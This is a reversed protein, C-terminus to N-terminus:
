SRRMVYGDWWRDGRMADLDRWQEVIAMGAGTMAATMQASRHDRFLEESEGDVPARVTTMVIGGDVLLDRMTRMAAGLASPAVHMLVASCLILDYRRGLARVGHLEPLRDEVWRVTRGGEAGRAADLFTRSPEAAVVSHGMAALAVADRGSGAGVDLVDIPKGPLYPMLRAHVDAFAVARHREFIRAAMADYHSVPDTATPTM